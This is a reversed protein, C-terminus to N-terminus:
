LGNKGRGSCMGAKNINRPWVGKKGTPVTAQGRGQISLLSSAAAQLGQSHGEQSQDAGAKSVRRGGHVLDATYIYTIIIYVIYSPLFLKPKHIFYGRHIDLFRWEEMFPFMLKALLNCVPRFFYNIYTYYLLDNILSVVSLSHLQRM